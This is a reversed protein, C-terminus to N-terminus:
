EDPGGADRLLREPRVDIACVADVEVGRNRKIGFRGSGGVGQESSPLAPDVLEAVITSGRLM